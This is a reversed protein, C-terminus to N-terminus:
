RVRCRISSILYLFNICARSLSNFKDVQLPQSHKPSTSTSTSSRGTLRGTFQHQDPTGPSKPTPSPPPSTTTTSGRTTTRASCPSTPWAPKEATPGIDPTTPTAGIRPGRAGPAAERTAGTSATMWVGARIRGPPHTAVIREPGGPGPVGCGSERHRTREPAPPPTRLLPPVPPSPTVRACGQTPLHAVVRDAL